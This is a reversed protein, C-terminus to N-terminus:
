HPVPADADLLLFDLAAATAARSTVTGGHGAGDLLRLRENPIGEATTRFLETSYYPDRTGGIVLTPARVEGLRDTVDFADEAEITRLLGVPDAPAMLPGLVWFAATLVPLLFRSATLAPADEAWARRHDGAATLQAHRRQMARGRDSLRCASALLVLRSVTAPHDVALQLAISGGTSIGLVPVPRGFEANLAQRHADAIDAMTTGAALPPRRVSYVTFRSALRRFRLAETRQSTGVPNATGAEIGGLLVLPPGAGFWLLPLGGQLVGARVQGAL